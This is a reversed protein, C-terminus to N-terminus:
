HSVVNCKLATRNKVDQAIKKAQERTKAFGAYIRIANKGNVNITQTTPNFGSMKLKAIVSDANAKNSFVGVQVAFDGGKPADQKSVNNKAKPADTANNSTQSSNAQTTKSESLVPPPVINQSTNQEHSLLPQSEVIAPSPGFMNDDPVDVPNTNQNAFSESQVQTTLPSSTVPVSPSQKEVVDNEPELLDTYDREAASVLRGNEDTLAGEKTIAIANDNKSYIEKPDMMAPVIIMILSLVVLLGVIRNRLSKSVSMKERGKSTNLSIPRM